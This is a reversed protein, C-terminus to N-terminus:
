SDDTSIPLKQCPNIGVGGGFILGLGEQMNVWESWM